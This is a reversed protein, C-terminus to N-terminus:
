IRPRGLSDPVLLGSSVIMKMAEDITLDTQTVDQEKVMILFGSTPLPTTPVFITLAPLGDSGTVQGTVLGLSSVGPRPFDLFVVGSARDTIDGVKAFVEMAQLLTNYISRVVPLIGITRHGVGIIWRGLGYSTLWGAIYILVVLAIIGMGTHYDGDNLFNEFVPQLLPDFWQLLVRFIAFTVVVPIVVLMGAALTKRFHRAVGSM